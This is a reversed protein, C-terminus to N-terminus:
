FFSIFILFLFLFHMYFCLEDSMGCRILPHTGFRRAEGPCGSLCGDTKGGLDAVTPWHRIFETKYTNKVNFFIKILNKKFM